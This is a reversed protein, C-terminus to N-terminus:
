FFVWFQNNSRPSGPARVYVSDEGVLGQTYAVTARMAASQQQRWEELVITREEDVDEDSIRIKSYWQALVGLSTRLTETDDVPIHLEYCTEEFSTYANQCPGFQAGIAELYNVVDQKEPYKETSRFALHEVIHAIGREHEQESISGVNVCLRLEARKQPEPNKKVYWRLGNELEGAKVESSFPLPSAGDLPLANTIKTIKVPPVSESISAM